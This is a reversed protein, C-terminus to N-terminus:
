RGFILVTFAYLVYLFSLFAFCIAFIAFMLFLILGFTTDHVGTTHRTIVMFLLTGVSLVLTVAIARRWVRELKDRNM